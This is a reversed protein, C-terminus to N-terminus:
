PSAKRRTSTCALLAAIMNHASTVAHFDGTFHLNIKEMPVVQAYGGGAAGGKMGFCPGLSPERLALAAKKGIKGLGLALGISATTKGIGTKTATIATVLILKCERVRRGDILGAPVKAMYKGYQEISDEPIGIGAAVDAIRRMKVNRAIEIDPKM